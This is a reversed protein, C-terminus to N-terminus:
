MCLKLEYIRLERLKINLLLVYHHVGELINENIQTSRSICKLWTGNGKSSVLCGPVLPQNQTGRYSPNFFIPCMSPWWNIHIHTQWRWHAQSQNSEKKPIYFGQSVFCVFFSFSCTRLVASSTCWEQVSSFFWWCFLQSLTCTKDGRTPSRGKSDLQCKGCPHSMTADM